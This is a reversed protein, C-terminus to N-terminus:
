EEEGLLDAFLPAQEALKKRQAKREKEIREKSTEQRRTEVQPEIFLRGEQLLALMKKQVKHQVSSSGRITLSFHFRAQELFFALCAERSEQVRWPITVGHNDGCLYRCVVRVAWTGDPLPAIEYSADAEMGARITRQGENANAAPDRVNREWAGRNHIPLTESM